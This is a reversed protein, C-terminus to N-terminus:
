LIPRPMMLTLKTRLDEDRFGPQPSVDTLEMRLSPILLILDMQLLTALLRYLLPPPPRLFSIPFICDALIALFITLGINPEDEMPFLFMPDNQVIDTISTPFSENTVPSEVIMFFSCM